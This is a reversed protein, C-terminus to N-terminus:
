LPRVKLTGRNHTPYTVPCALPWLPWPCQNSCRLHGSTAPTSTVTPAVVNDKTKAPNNIHKNTSNVQNIHNHCALGQTKMQLKYNDQGYKTHM